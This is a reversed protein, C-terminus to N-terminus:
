TFVIIEATQDAKPSQFYITKNDLDMNYEFSDFRDNQPITLYNTGSEGSTFALKLLANQSRLKLHFGKTNNPLNYGYETNALPMSVNVVTPTMKAQGSAASSAQLEALISDLKDEVRQNTAGLTTRSTYFYGKDETVLRVALAEKKDQYKDLSFEQEKIAQLIRNDDFKINKIAKLINSASKNIAEVIIKLDVEQYWDPKEVRVSNTVEVKNQPKPIKIERLNSIRVEGPPVPLKIRAIQELKKKINYLLGLLTNDEYTTKYDVEHEKTFRKDVKKVDMNKKSGNDNIITNGGDNTTKRTNKFLNSLNSHFDTQYKIM